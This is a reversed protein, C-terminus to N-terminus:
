EFIHSMLWEYTHSMVWEHTCCSGHRMWIRAVHSMWTHLMVWGYTHSMVWSEIMHTRCSGHSMCIHAVHSMWTHAVHSVVCDCTHKMVWERAVCSMVHGHVSDCMHAIVWLENMHTHWSEHVRAYFLKVYSDHSVLSVSRSTVMCHNMRTHWSEYSVWTHAIIHLIIYSKFTMVWSLCLVHRTWTLGHKNSGSESTRKLPRTRSPNTTVYM